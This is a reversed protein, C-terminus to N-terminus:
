LRVASTAVRIGMFVLGALIGILCIPHAMIFDIATGAINFMTGAVNKVHDLVLALGTLENM